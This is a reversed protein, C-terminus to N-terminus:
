AHEANSDCERAVIIPSAQVALLRITEGVLEVALKLLSAAEHTQGCRM